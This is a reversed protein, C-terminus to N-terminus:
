IIQCTYHFFNVDLNFILIISLIFNILTYIKGNPDARKEFM